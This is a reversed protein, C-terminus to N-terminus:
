KGGGTTGTSDSKTESPVVSKTITKTETKADSTIVPDQPKPLSAPVPEGPPCPDMLLVVIFILLAVALITLALSVLTVRKKTKSTEPVTPDTM